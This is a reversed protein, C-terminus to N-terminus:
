RPAFKDVLIRALWPLWRSTVYFRPYILRKKRKEMARRIRRALEEPTGEPVKPVNERGGFAVFAAEAMPTKVPGPYVTLLHVGSGALEGRTGESFAALGAKSAGYYTQLPPAVLAAVSAVNVIMGSKRALMAPLLRRILVLPSILNLQFLKKFQDVDTAATPGTNEMGANNILVDIPGHAAEAEDVWDGAREADALDHAVVRCSPGIEAALSELLEKRRAVLTLRAGHKGLERALAAGIGSSAGTIVVHQGSSPAAAPTTTPATTATTPATM